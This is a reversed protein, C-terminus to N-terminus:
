AFVFFAEVRVQFGPGSVNHNKRLQQGSGVLYNVFESVDFVVGRGLQGLYSPLHVLGQRADGSAQIGNEAVGLALSDDIFLHGGGQAFSSQYYRDNGGVFSTDLTDYVVLRGASLRYIYLRGFHHLGVVADSFEFPFFTAFYDADEGKKGIFQTRVKGVDSM